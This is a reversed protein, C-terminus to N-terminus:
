NKRLSQAAAELLNVKEENAPTGSGDVGVCTIEISDRGYFGLYYFGRIKKNQRDTATFHVRYFPGGALSGSEPTGKQLDQFQYFQLNSALKLELDFNPRQKMGEVMREDLGANIVVLLNIDEPKNTTLTPGFVQYGRPVDIQYSGALTLHQTLQDRYKASPSWATGGGQSSSGATSASSSGKDRNLFLILGVVAGAIVILGVAGGGILIWLMANSQPQKRKKRPQEMDDFDDDDRTRQKKRAPPEDPVDDEPVFRHDCDPCTIRKCPAPPKKMSLETDCNPCTTNFPM